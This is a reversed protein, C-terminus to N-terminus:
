SLDLGFDAYLEYTAARTEELRFRERVRARGAEGLQAGYAPSELIRGVGGSLGEVDRAGALLGTEGDSVLEPVGGVRTAV